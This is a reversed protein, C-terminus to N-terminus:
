GQLRCKALDDSAHLRRHEVLTQVTDHYEVSSAGHYRVGAGGKCSRDDPMADLSTSDAFLVLCPGDELQEIRWGLGEEALIRRVFDLDPERYQCCYSRPPVTTLHSATDVSWRWRASPMYSAFVADVIEVVTKDQWVRSNRVHELRWIWPSIRVRYRALGGDSGLVSVARIEGSIREQAGDVLTIELSAPQGLLPETELYASTSLAIVDCVPTDLLADEASYAEVLLTSTTEDGITLGILRTESSFEALTEAIQEGLETSM